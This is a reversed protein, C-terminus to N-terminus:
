RTRDPNDKIFDAWSGYGGKRRTTRAGPALADTADAPGSAQYAHCVAIALADTADALQADTDTPHYGAVHYRLSLALQEKTAAGRGTVAKKVKRPAYEYVRLGAAMAAAIVIGQARGLKILSQPNEGYFPAEIALEAPNHGTIVAGIREYLLRLRDPHEDLHSLTVVGMALLELKRPQVRLLAYGTVRSGPDVGLVVTAPPAPAPTPPPGPM